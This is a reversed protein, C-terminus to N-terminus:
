VETEQFVGLSSFRFNSLRIAYQRGLSARTALVSATLSGASAGYIKMAGEVLYPARELLCGAVGIHYVGLFGCGAFSISWGGELDLM